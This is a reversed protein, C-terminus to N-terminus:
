SQPRRRRRKIDVVKLGSARAVGLQRDDASVFTTCLAIHAAAVHLLDLSRALFRAAHLRSLEGAEAFVRELDLAIPALRQENLDEQVHAHVARFEERSMLGRGVLRELANLVELRHMATFPVQPVSRVVSRAAKSFREAVYVAVLATSDVYTTV